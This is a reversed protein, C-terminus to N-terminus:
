AAEVNGDDSLPVWILTWKVVGSTPTNTTTYRFELHSDTGNKAMLIYESFTGAVRRVQASTTLTVAATNDGDHTILSDIAASSLTTGTALTVAVQNTGDDMRLHAATVNSDLVTTVVGELGLVRVSGTIKFVDHSKTTNNADLTISKEAVFPQLRRELMPVGLPFNM